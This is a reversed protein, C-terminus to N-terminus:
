ETDVPLHKDVKSPTVECFVVEEADGGYSCQM